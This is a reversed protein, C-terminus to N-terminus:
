LGRADSSPHPLFPQLPCNECRPSSKLCHKKGVAVILGHMDNYIQALPSRKALSMPSPPHAGGGISAEPRSNRFELVAPSRAGAMRSLAGEFLHRIEDYSANATLIHHRHLIRRAYTDVVFIPHQGAYLLISDATEPGVGKLALLEQRLKETPESFMRNLSGNYRMDLLALFGKLNRAKQRFYGASRIMSELQSLPARRLGRLNLLGAARLRRLAQEVNTWATNQVLYAGVIVELRTRGPWWHQRGWARYLTRYYDRLQAQKSLPKLTTRPQTYFLLSATSHPHYYTLAM